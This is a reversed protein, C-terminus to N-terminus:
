RRQQSPITQEHAVQAVVNVLRRQPPETTTVARERLHVHGDIGGPLVYRGQADIEVPAAM